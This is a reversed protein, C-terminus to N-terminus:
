RRLLDALASNALDFTAFGYEGSDWDGTLNNYGIALMFDGEVPRFLISYNTGGNLTQFNVEYGQKSLVKGVGMKETDVDKVSASDRQPLKNAMWSLMSTGAGMLNGSLVAIAKIVAQLALPTKASQLLKKQEAIAIGLNALLGGISDNLDAQISKFNSDTVEIERKPLDEVGELMADLIDKSVKDNCDMLNERNSFAELMLYIAAITQTGEEIVNGTEDDNIAMCLEGFEEGILALWKEMSNNENPYKKRIYEITNHVTVEFDSIKM